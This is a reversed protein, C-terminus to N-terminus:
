AAADAIWSVTHAPSDDVWRFPLSLTVDAGNLTVTGIEPSVLGTTAEITPALGNISLTAVGIESGFILTYGLTGLAVQAVGPSVFGINGGQTLNFTLVSLTLAAPAPTVTQVFLITPAFSAPPNELPAPLAPSIIRIRQEAPIQGVTSLAGVGPTVLIPAAASLGILTLAAPAPTRFVTTPQAAGLSLSQLTLLAPAPTIIGPASDLAFYFRRGAAQLQNGYLRNSM